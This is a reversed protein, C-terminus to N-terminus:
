KTKKPCEHVSMSMLPCGHVFGLGLIDMLTWPRGFIDMITLFFM